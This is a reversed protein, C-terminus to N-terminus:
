LSQGHLAKQLGALSQLVASQLYHSRMLNLAKWLGLLDLRLLDLRLLDRASVGFPGAIM